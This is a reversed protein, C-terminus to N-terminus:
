PFVGVLASIADSAKKYFIDLFIWVPSFGYSHLYHGSLNKNVFRRFSICSVECLHSVPDSSQHKLSLVSLKLIIHGFLIHPLFWIYTVNVPPKVLVPIHLSMYFVLHFGTGHALGKIYQNQNLQVWVDCEMAM